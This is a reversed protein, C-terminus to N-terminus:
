NRSPWRYDTASFVLNYEVESATFGYANLNWQTTSGTYEVPFFNIGTSGSLGVQMTNLFGNRGRHAFQLQYTTGITASFTQYLAQSASSSANIEIFNNGEYAPVGLFGSGWVEIVDDPATTQWYPICEQPYFTYNGNSTRSCFTGDVTSGTSTTCPSACTGLDNQFVDFSPNRLLGCAENVATIKGNNIGFSGDVTYIKNILTPVNDIAVYFNNGGTSISSSCTANGHVTDNIAPVSGAITFSGNSVVTGGGNEITSQTTSWRFSYTQCAM